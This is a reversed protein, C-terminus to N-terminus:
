QFRILESSFPQKQIVKWIFIYWNIGNSFKYIRSVAWFWHTEILNGNFIFWWSDITRLLIKISFADIKLKGLILAESDCKSQSRILGSISSQSNLILAKTHLKWRSRMLQSSYPQSDLMFGKSFTYNKTVACFWDMGLLNRNFVYWNQCHWSDISRWAIEISFVHMAPYCVKLIQHRRILHRNLVHWNQSSDLVLKEM